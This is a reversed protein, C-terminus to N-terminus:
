RERRAFHAWYVIAAVAILGMVAVLAKGYLAAVVPALALMPLGSADLRRTVALLLAMCLLLTAAVRLDYVALVGLATAAGKGGRFGLQAPWVHGAVVAAMAAAVVGDRGSLAGASVTVLSGKGADVLLAFAFGSRGLVRGANTAGPNGSGLTRLDQGTRWRVLYYAGVVCGVAYAGAAFLTPVWVREVWGSM